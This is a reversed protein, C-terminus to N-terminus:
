QQIDVASNKYIILIGEGRKTHQKTENPTEAAHRNIYTYMIVTPKEGVRYQQGMTVVMPSGTKFTM